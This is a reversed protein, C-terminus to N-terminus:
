PGDEPDEDPAIDPDAELAVKKSGYLEDWEPDHGPRRRRHPEKRRAALEDIDETAASGAAQTISASSDANNGVGEESRSLANILQDILRRNEFSLRHASVPPSYPEIESRGLERNMESLDIELAEAVRMQAELKMQSGQYFFRSLSANNMDLDDALQRVSPEGNRPNVYGAKVFARRIRQPLKETM